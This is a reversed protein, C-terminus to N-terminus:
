DSFSIYLEQKSVKMLIDDDTGLPDLYNRCNKILISGVGMLACQQATDSNRDFAEEDVVSDGGDPSRLIGTRTNRPFSALVLLDLAFTMEPFNLGADGEEANLSTRRCFRALSLALRGSAAPVRFNHVAEVAAGDYDETTLRSIVAAQADGNSFRWAFKEYSELVLEHFDEASM